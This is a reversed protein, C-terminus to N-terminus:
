AAYAAAYKSCVVYFTNLRDGNMSVASEMVQAAQAWLADARGNWYLLTYRAANLTQQGNVDYFGAGNAVNRPFSTFDSGFRQPGPCTAGSVGVSGCADAARPTPAPNGLSDKNYLPGSLATEHYLRWGLNVVPNALAAAGGGPQQAQVWLDD